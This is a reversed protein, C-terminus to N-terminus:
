SPRGTSEGPELEPELIVSRPERGADRRRELILTAAQHGLGYIPQAVTTLKPTVMDVLPIGDFGIISVDRPVRLGLERAARLAGLAMTDSGAFLATPRDPRSLLEAALNRGSAVSYTGFRVLDDTGLGADALAAVAGEHRERATSTDLTRNIIGIRRHGLGVLHEIAIAGGRRNNVLVTDAGIAELRRDVVVVPVGHEVLYRLPAPPREDGVPTLILGDIRRRALLRLYREEKAIDDDTNALLTGYGAEDAVDEIARVMEPFFPNSIDPIVCAILMTAATKLSRAVSSPEYGLQTVARTVRLTMEPAVGGTGNLVRSVTAISVGAHRAVDRITTM